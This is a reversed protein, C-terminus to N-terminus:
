VEGHRRRLVFGAGLALFAAFAAFGGVALQGSTNAEGAAAALPLPHAAAEAPSVVAPANAVVGLVRGPAVVPPVVSPVGSRPVVSSPVVSSPVVSPPVVSPPVVSPPVVSPPVVSPTICGTHAPNTRGIGHNSDCEYGANLDSGNPMQGPPNKNDAKGVAGAAPRGVAKGNNNGNMSSLGTRTSCYPGGPCQGNAGGLNADANSIPQPMNPSGSTSASATSAFGGALALSLAATLIGMRGLRRLQARPYSM